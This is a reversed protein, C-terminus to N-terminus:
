KGRMVGEVTAVCFYNHSNTLAIGQRPPSSHYIGFLCITYRPQYWKCEGGDAEWIRREKERQKFLFGVVLFSFFPNASVPSRGVWETDRKTTKGDTNGHIHYFLRQVFEYRGDAHPRM